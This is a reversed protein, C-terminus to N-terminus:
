SAVGLPADEDLLDITRARPRGPRRLGEGNPRRLLSSAVQELNLGDLARKCYALAAAVDSCAQGEGVMRPVNRGLCREWVLRRLARALVAHSSDAADADLRRVHDCAQRLLVDELGRTRRLHCYLDDELVRCLQDVPALDRVARASRGWGPAASRTWVDQDVM